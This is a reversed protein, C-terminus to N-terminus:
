VSCLTIADGFAMHLCRPPCHADVRRRTIRADTVEIGPAEGHEVLRAQIGFTKM